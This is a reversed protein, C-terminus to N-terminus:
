FSQLASQVSAAPQPGPGQSRIVSQPALQVTAVRCTTFWEVGGFLLKAACGNIPEVSYGAAVIDAHYVEFVRQGNQYADFLYNVEGHRGYQGVVVLQLGAYPMGVPIAPVVPAPVPAGGPVPVSAPADGFERRLDAFRDPAPAPVAAVKPAEVSPASLLGRGTASMYILSGLGVSICLAAGVVPWQKWFPKVDQAYAEASTDSKTHSKYFPFFAADYARTEVNMEAGRVGDLVKRIYKDEQGWATKKSVRYCLQVMEVINKDVKGYSQTMLLVDANEHRHMSFWEEVQQNTGGRRLAFHCEDIVYLPGIGTTPHKWSSGYEDPTAFRIPKQPTPKRIELLTEVFPGLVAVFHAVNLPLNTIVKRNQKLAPLVHFAVAEYSKGAGPRGILLNIM